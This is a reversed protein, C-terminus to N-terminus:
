NKWSEAAIVPLPRRRRRERMSYDCVLLGAVTLGTLFIMPLDAVGLSDVSSFGSAILFIAWAWWHIDRDKM